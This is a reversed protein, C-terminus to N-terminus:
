VNNVGKAYHKLHLKFPYKLLNINEAGGYTRNTVVDPDM